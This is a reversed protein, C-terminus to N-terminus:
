NFRKHKKVKWRASIYKNKFIGKKINHSPSIIIKNRIRNKNMLVLESVAKSKDTKYYALDTREIKIKAKGHVWKLHKEMEM